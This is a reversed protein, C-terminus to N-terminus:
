IRGRPNRALNAEDPPEYPLDYLAAITKGVLLILEINCGCANVDLSIVVVPFRM